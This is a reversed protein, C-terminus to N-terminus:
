QIALHLQTAIGETTLATARILTIAKEEGSLHGYEEALNQLQQAIHHLVPAHHAPHIGVAINDLIVAAAHMTGLPKEESNDAYAEVLAHLQRATHRLACAHLILTKPEVTPTSKSM